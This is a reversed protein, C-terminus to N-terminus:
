DETWLWELHFQQLLQKGRNTHRSGRIKAIELQQRHKSLQSVLHRHNMMAKQLESDLTFDLVTAFRIARLIRLADEEMKQDANGVVRIIRQDLDSRAGLLDVEEGAANICLTNIVFDRRQLDTKLDDVLTIKEPFRHHKYTGDRRFLTIQFAKGNVDIISSAFTTKKVTFLRELLAQPANTCLDFDTSELGLYRDRPYGGVIYAEYGAECIMNLISRATEYMM